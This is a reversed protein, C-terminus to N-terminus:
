ELQMEGLDGMGSGVLQAAHRQTLFERGKELVPDNSELCYSYKNVHCGPTPRSELRLPHANFCTDTLPQSESTDPFCMIRANRTAM